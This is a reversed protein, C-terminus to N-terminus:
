IEIIVILMEIIEDNSMIIMIELVIQVKKIPYTCFALFIAPKGYFFHFFVCSFCLFYLNFGRIM